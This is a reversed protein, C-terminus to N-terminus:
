LLVNFYFVIITLLGLLMCTKAISSAFSYDNKKSARAVITILYFLPSQVAILLTLIIYYLGQSYLYYQVVATLLLEIIILSLVIIKTKKIGIVIPITTCGDEGDGEIDEIDKIIERILNTIFAFLAYSFLYINILRFAKSAYIFNISNQQLAFFEFMWVILLSIATLLSVALNGTFFVRKYKFSYFWLVMTVIVFTMALQLAGIRYSVYTGITIGIINFAKHLVDASNLSIETGLLVADPKNRMDIDVDYYDNIIYGAAAIFVTALVFLAFDINSIQLVANNSVLIPKIIFYRVFYQTLAIILLNHFRFLSLYKKM